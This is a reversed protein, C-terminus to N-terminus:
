EVQSQHSFRVWVFGLGFGASVLSLIAESANPDSGGHTLFLGVIAVLIAGGLSSRFIGVIRAGCGPASARYEEGYSASQLRRGSDLSRRADAQQRQYTERTRQSQDARRAHDQHQQFGRNAM